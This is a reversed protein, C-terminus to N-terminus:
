SSVPKGELLEGILLSTPSVSGHLSCATVPHIIACALQPTYCNCMLQWSFGFSLTTSGTPLIQLLLTHALSLFLSLSM